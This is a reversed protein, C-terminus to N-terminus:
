ELEGVTGFRQRLLRFGSLRVLGLCGILLSADLLILLCFRQTSDLNTTPGAAPSISSAFSYVMWTIIIYCMGATATLLGLVIMMRVVLWRNWLAIWLGSLGVAAHGIGLGILPLLNAPRLRQLEEFGIAFSLLALFVALAATWVMLTRLSFQLSDARRDVQDVDALAFGAYRAVVLPLTIAVAQALFIVAWATGLLQWLDLPANSRLLRSWVVVVAWVAALRWIAWSAGGVLVLWIVALTVQSLAMAEALILTTQSPPEYPTRAPNLRLAVALDALMILALLLALPLRSNKMLRHGRAAMAM